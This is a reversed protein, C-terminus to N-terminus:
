VNRTEASKLSLLRFLCERYSEYLKLHLKLSEIATEFAMELTMHQVNTPDLQLADALQAITPAKALSTLTMAKRFVAEHSKRDSKATEYVLFLSCQLRTAVELLAIVEGLQSEPNVLDPVFQYKSDVLEQVAELLKNHSPNM